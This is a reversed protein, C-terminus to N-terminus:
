QVRRGRDLLDARLSGPAHLCEGDLTLTMSTGSMSVDVGGSSTPMTPDVEEGVKTSWDGTCHLGINVSCPPPIRRTEKRGGWKARSM